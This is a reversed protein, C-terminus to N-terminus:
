ARRDDRSYSPNDGSKPNTRCFLVKETLPATRLVGLTEDFDYVTGFSEPLAGVFGVSLPSYVGLVALLIGL